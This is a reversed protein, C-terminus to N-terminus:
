FFSAPWLCCIAKDLPLWTAITQSLQVDLVLPALPLLTVAPRQAHNGGDELEDQRDGEAADGGPVPQGEPKPEQEAGQGVADQAEQPPRQEPFSVFALQADIVSIFIFIDNDRRSSGHPLM